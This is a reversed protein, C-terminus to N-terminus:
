LRPQISRLLALTGEIFQIARQMRSAALPQRSCQESLQVFRKRQTELISMTKNVAFRLIGKLAEDNDFNNLQGEITILYEYSKLEDAIQMLERLGSQICESEGSPLDPRRSLQAADTVVNTFNTRIASVRELDSDDLVRARALGQSSAALALVTLIAWVARCAHQWFGRGVTLRSM